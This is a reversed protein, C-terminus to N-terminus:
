GLSAFFLPVQVITRRFNRAFRLHLPALPSPIDAGDKQRSFWQRLSQGLTWAVAVVTALVAVLSLTLLVSRTGGYSYALAVLAVCAGALVWRGITDLEGEAPPPGDTFAPVGRIECILVWVLLCTMPGVILAFVLVPHM